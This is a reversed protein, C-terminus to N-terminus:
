DLLEVLWILMCSLTIGNLTWWFDSALILQIRVWEKCRFGKNCTVIGIVSSSNQRPKSDVVLMCRKHSCRSSSSENGLKNEAALIQALRSSHLKYYFYM